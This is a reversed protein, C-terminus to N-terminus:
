KAHSKCARATTAMPGGNPRSDVSSRIRLGVVTVVRVHLGLGVASLTGTPWPMKTSGDGSYECSAPSRPLPPLPEHCRPETIPNCTQKFGLAFDRVKLGRFGQIGYVRARLGRSELGQCGLGWAAYLTCYISMCLINAQIQWIAICICHICQIHISEKYIYM